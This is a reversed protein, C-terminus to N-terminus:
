NIQLYGSFFQGGGNNFVYYYMRNEEIRKNSIDSVGTWDNTYGNKQFIQNGFDDFVYLSNNPFNEIGLITFKELKGADKVTSMGNVITITECLIEISVTVEMVQKSVTMQYIFTDEKECLNQLPKYEFTQDANLRVEGFKPQEIVRLLVPNENEEETQLYDFVVSHNKVVIIHDSTEIKNNTSISNKDFIAFGNGLSALAILISLVNSAKTKVRSLQKNTGFLM